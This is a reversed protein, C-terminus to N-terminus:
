APLTLTCVNNEYIGFAFRVWATTSRSLTALFIFDCKFFIKIFINYSLFNLM